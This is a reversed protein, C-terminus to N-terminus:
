KLVEVLYRKQVAKDRTEHNIFELDLLTIHFHDFTKVINFNIKSENMYDLLSNDCYILETSKTSLERANEDKYAPLYEGKLYYEMLWDRNTDAVPKGEFHENAYFAVQAGSQYKLIEPYFVTNVYFGCVTLAIVGFVVYPVSKSQKMFDFYIMLVVISISCIMSIAGFSGSFLYELLVILTLLLLSYLNLTIKTFLKIKGSEMQENLWAATSIAVFPFIINLYHSLQFKSTAFIMFMTMFGFFTIFENSRNFLIQGGQKILVFFSLLGWPAFAWLFTHFFFPFDGRGKIPGTNFFRGFQSDWLFFKIGSVGKEGFAIADPNSDFQVWLTYLEPTIMLIILVPMLLIWRINLVKKIEGRVFLHGLIASYPIILVFIGKTMVSAAAFACALLLDKTNFRELLCYMYYTAAAITGVLIAEARVDNNSIVIHLSGTLILAAVQAVNKSYLRLALLYTYYVGLLSFLLSPLKYAFTNIGFVEMSLAGMWFPFHPKDLWDKEHVYINIYDGTTQFLKSIVAYLASDGTFIDNFLGLCNIIILVSLWTWFTKKKM